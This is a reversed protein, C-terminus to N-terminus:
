KKSYRWQELLVWQCPSSVTEWKEKWQKKEMSMKGVIHRLNEQKEGM